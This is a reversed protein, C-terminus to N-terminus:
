VLNKNCKYYRNCYLINICPYWTVHTFMPLTQLIACQKLGIFSVKQTFSYSRYILKTFEIYKNKKKKKTRVLKIHLM